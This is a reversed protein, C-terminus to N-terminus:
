RKKVTLRTGARHNTLKIRQKAKHNAQGGLGRGHQESDYYAAVGENALLIISLKDSFISHNISSWVNKREYSKAGRRGGKV